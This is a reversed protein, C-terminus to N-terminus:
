PEHHHSAYEFIKNITMAIIPRGTQREAQPFGGVSLTNIESLVRMGDDDELTDVGYILIGHERLLPNITDVIHIEQKTPEAPVSSGGMAVNCLWSGKPPLRNSAALIDGNVVIIRKDGNTVNKLYKMALYGSTELEPEIRPLYSELDWDTKDDSIVHGVIKLLGKGGYERLPKLVIDRGQAFDVVEAASKCLQIPPCLEPFNLLFSKNSCEIIGLPHNIIVADSALEHLAVLFADSVPRPLRLLIIDYDHPKVKLAQRSYQSGTVEYRFDRTVQIVELDSLHPSSFFSANQASGRTAVHLCSCATHSAMQSLLAYLSNEKSHTRHDTLALIKYTSM